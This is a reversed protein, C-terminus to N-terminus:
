ACRASLGAEAELDVASLEVLRALDVVVLVSDIFPRGRDRLMQLLAVWEAFESSDVASTAYRGSTDILIGQRTAYADLRSPTNAKATTLPLELRAANIVSTSM